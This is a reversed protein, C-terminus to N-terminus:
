NKSLKYLDDIATIMKSWSLINALTKQAQLWRKVQNKDEPKDSFFTTIAKSIETAESTIIFDTDCCKNSLIDLIDTDTTIFPKNYRLAIRTIGSQKVLKYPMVILDAASFFIPVENDPIYRDYIYVRDELNLRKIMDIFIDKSQFFDGAIILHISPDTDPLAHLLLDLGKYEKVQGFFLIYKINIENENIIIKEPLKLKKLAQERPILEGYHDYLPHHVILYHKNINLENFEDAVKESLFIFADIYKAFYKFSKKQSFKHKGYISNVIAITVIDKNNKKLYRAIQGYIIGLFAVWYQFIVIDPNRSSILKATFRWTFPNWSKLFNHIKLKYKNLFEEIEAKDTIKEDKRFIIYPYLRKFGFIEVDKGAKQLEIALRNKLAAMGGKFPFALGVMAVRQWDKSM